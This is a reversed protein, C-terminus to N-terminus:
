VVPGFLTDGVLACLALSGVEASIAADALAAIFLRRLLMGDKGVEPLSDKDEGLESLTDARCLRVDAVVGVEGVTIALLDVGSSEDSRLPRSAMRPLILLM